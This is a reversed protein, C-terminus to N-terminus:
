LRVDIYTKDKLKEVWELIKDNAKKRKAMDKITDWDQDLTLKRREKKDLVKLIHVGLDSLVPKSIEGITLNKVAEKLEPTMQSVPYWGLEGGMKKSEEDVSLDKVLQGFDGGNKLLKCISDAKAWVQASDGASPQIQILIHRVHILDDKKEELKIIHYGLNTKAMGIEGPNLSFAEKEFEPLLDGKKFFGLDGGKDKSPDESYKQALSAFDGGKEAESLIKEAKQELSDLTHDSPKVTLLIHSLRVAEQQEPLSDQYFDFFDKVEKNSIGVSSLKSSVLKDELLKEKIQTKYKKRLDRETLGEKKLGEQFAEESPFQEKLGKIEEELADDVEKPTVQLLTDKEAQTVILKDNIMQDLLERKLNNEEESTKIKPKFQASYLQFRAELESELIIKDGVVAVIRDLVQQGYSQEPLTTFFFLSGLVLVFFFISRKMGFLHPIILYLKHWFM